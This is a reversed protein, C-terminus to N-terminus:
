IWPTDRRIAPPSAPFPSRWTRRSRRETSWAPKRSRGTETAPRSGASRSGSPWDKVMPTVANLMEENSLSGAISIVVNSAGYQHQFWDTMMEANYTSRKRAAASTVGWPITLCLMQDTLMEVRYGPYDNSMALEEQIVSREKEVEESDM